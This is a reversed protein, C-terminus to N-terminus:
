RITIVKIGGSEVHVGMKEMVQRQDEKHQGSSLLYTTM